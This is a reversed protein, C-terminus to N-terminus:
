DGGAPKRFYLNDYEYRDRRRHPVLGGAAYELCQYGRAELFDILEGSPSSGGVGYDGTEVALTLSREHLLREMGRLVDLEASEADIKVLDPQREAGAFHDDLSVCEVEYSEATLARRDPKPVRADDLLTNLASNRPGFDQIRTRGPGSYAAREVVEVNGLGALNRSLLAFSRRSPEFAVVRGAPGVLASAVLSHYGYLAGVDVFCMGPELHTLLVRTLEPEYLGHRFIELGVKEPLVVRLRQGSFLEAEVEQEPLRLRYVLRFRLERAPHRALM